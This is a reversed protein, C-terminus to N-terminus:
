KKIVKKTIMGMETTVRVMYMGQPLTSINIYENGSIQKTLLLSGSLDYISIRVNKESTNLRFGDSVPNPYVIFEDFEGAKTENIGTGINASFYYHTKTNNNWVTNTNDRLTEIDEVPMNNIDGASPLYTISVMSYGSPFILDSFNYSPNYTSTENSYLDWNNATANWESTLYTTNNGNADYGYEYKWKLVLKKSIFDWQSLIETGLRGNTDYTLEYKMYTIWENAYLMSNIVTAVKGSDNYTFDFKMTAVWAGADVDMSYAIFQTYRGSSDYSYEYKMEPDWKNTGANWKSILFQSCRGNVYTFDYKLSEIWVDPNTKWEYILIQTNYGSGDYTFEEKSNNVWQSSTKNWKSNIDTAWKGNANYTYEDKTHKVWVKTTDNWDYYIGVIWKGSADYTYEDKTSKVWDGAKWGWEVTSDLKQKTSASKMNLTQTFAKQGLLLLGLNRQYDNQELGKLQMNVKSTVFAKNVKPIIIQGFAFSAVLVFLTTLLLKKKMILPKLTNM